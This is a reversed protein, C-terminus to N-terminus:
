VKKGLFGISLCYIIMLHNNFFNGNPIMPWITILLSVLLCIQYNSYIKYQKFIKYYFLKLFIFFIYIFLGFLFSFGIIGTEALLQFYFNHPHTMCSLEGSYYNQEKCKFRFMKPGHGIISRDLFMKIASSYLQEHGSTFFVIRNYNSNYFNNSKNINNLKKTFNKEFFHSLNMSQYVSIYRQIIREGTDNIKLSLTFFSCLFLVIISGMFFTKKKIKIFFVIILLFLITYFLAAREGSLFITFVSFIFFIIFFIKEQFSKNKRVFFLATVLPLLRSLYSGLILEEGFLSSVRTYHNKLDFFYQIFAYFCLISFTFILILYFCRLTDKDQDILFSIMLCFIGIRFYFLSSEFSILVNDSMLSSFICSLCFFIFLYFFKNQFFFFLKNKFSYYIFWISLTSLLLDPLFPGTVILPVILCSLYKIIKIQKLDLNTM